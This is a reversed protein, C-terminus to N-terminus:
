RVRTRKQVMPTSAGTYLAIVYPQTKYWRAAGADERAGAQWTVFSHDHNGLYSTPVKDFSNLYRRNNLANLLRAYIQGKWLYDFCREYLANDWYSTAKSRNTVDAADTSLHELTLSFNVEGTKDLYDQIDQLLEILGEAKGPIYFNVTNDFRIGDIKFKRDLLSVRRKHVGPHVLQQLESGASGPFHRRLRWHLPVKRYRPLVM